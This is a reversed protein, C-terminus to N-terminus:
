AAASRRKAKSQGPSPRRDGLVYKVIAEAVGHKNNSAVQHHAMELVETYSNAVAVACGAWYMMPLDNPADGIAMVRSQEVGYHECVAELAAAKDVGKRSLQLIREDTHHTTVYKAYRASIEKKLRAMSQKRGLMTLRTVPETFIQEFTGVRAPRNRAESPQKKPNFRDTYWKDVVDARVQIEGDIKRAIKAVHLCLEAPMSQHYLVSLDAGDCVVAGNFCIMQTELGLERLVHQANLPPRATSLVVHVGRDRARHVAEIVPETLTRDSRLLTGDVDVAILDYHNRPPPPAAGASPRGGPRLLRMLKVFFSL